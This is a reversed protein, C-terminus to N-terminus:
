YRMIELVEGNCQTIFYHEGEFEAVRVRIYNGKIDVTEYNTKFKGYHLIEDFLEEKTKGRCEKLGLVVYGEKCYKPDNLIYSVEKMLINGTYAGDITEELHLIDGVNFDRDNFRVEFTKNGNEIQVYYQHKTKLYHHNRNM